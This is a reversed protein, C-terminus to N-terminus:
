VGNHEQTLLERRFFRLRCRVQRNIQVVEDVPENWGGIVSYEVTHSGVLLGSETYDSDRWPGGDVRWQAGANVAEPPLITVQLSGTQLIYTGSTTTTQGGNIQVTENNPENWGSVSNYRVTHSGVSLGTETYGSNRWPKNDVRWRAGGDIAAQPSITVQLSGSQTTYTGSTTTTQGDNIQVIEDAPETWGGIVSYEVTHSGVSLGGETYGSDRWPGGDVRWQAGATVAEPPLITVQLSGTQLIYTGSTTTTQGDNIQVVEDVPENWGGIVSYEVTHSGVSLGSETYGSNRWPGGAVRWQAGATVAEPPLITVQLSGGQQTYTGSTTTTQGDNIQVVEDVPENWGGIVSYEVTHSGVALGSETYGSNRWPGGDVRWQAGATVAEPPLITVQLSGSQQTYTGSTTTTQGGNIQVAENGPRAWGSVVNYEVTHSGVSLGGETYGSSRWPGGDVRWQAGADIAGQPSITVQLSGTMGEIVRWNAALLAFDSMNVNGDYDLDACNPDPVSLNTIAGAEAESLVRSYIRFDDVRGNFPTSGDGEAGIVFPENNSYITPTGLTDGAVFSGNKYISLHGDSFTGVVHTWQSLAIAITAYGFGSNSSDRVYFTLTGNSPICLITYAGGPEYASANGKCLLVVPGANDSNFWGSISFNNTLNLSSDSGCDVYDGNGDLDLAGDIQGTTWVPNGQLTGHNGGVSDSADSDLKWHSLLGEASTVREVWQGALLKLDKFDVECDGSLDGAPCTTGEGAAAFAAVSHALRNAATSHQWSMTTLGATAVAKTGCTASSSSASASWRPEMGGANPTFSGSNGCGVVDVVWAGDTLTTIDTSITDSSTNANTAVAERGRQDVGTLSVAGGNRNSVPGSYTVTITDTGSAPSLLYYLETKQLTSVDATSSSGAVLSMNAGGYTVSSIVLDNVSDDEAAIGVVLIRNNGSGVTHSWSLTPGAPESGSTGFSANDFGIAANAVGVSLSMVLIVVPILFEKSKFFKM